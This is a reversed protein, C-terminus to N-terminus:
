YSHQYIGDLSILTYKLHITGISLGTTILKDIPRNRFVKKKVNIYFYLQQTPLLFSASFVQIKAELAERQM